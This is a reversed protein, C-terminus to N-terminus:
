RLAVVQVSGVVRYSQSKWDWERVERMVPAGALCDMGRLPNSDVIEFEQRTDFRLHAEVRRRKEDPSLLTIRQIGRRPMALGLREALVPWAIKAMLTNSKPLDPPRAADYVSPICLTEGDSLSVLLNCLKAWREPEHICTVMHVKTNDGFMRGCYPCPETPVLSIKRRKCLSRLTNDDRGLHRAIQSATYKGAMERIVAVEENTWTLRPM